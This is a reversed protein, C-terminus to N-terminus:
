TSTRVSGLEITGSIGHLGAAPGPLSCHAPVPGALLIIQLAVGLVAGAGWLNAKM